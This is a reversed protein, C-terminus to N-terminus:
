GNQHRATEELTFNVSLWLRSCTSIHGVARRRDGRHINPRTGGWFKRKEKTFITGSMHYLLKLRLLLLLCSGSTPIFLLNCPLIGIRTLIHFEGDGNVPDVVTRM